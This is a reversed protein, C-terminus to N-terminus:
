NYLTILNVQPPCFLRIPPAYCANSGLGACISFADVGFRAPDDLDEKIFIGDSYKRGLQTMTVPAGYGPIKIQGGHTHGAIGFDARWRDPFYTFVDPNHAVIIKLVGNPAEKMCITPDIGRRRHDVGGLFISTGGIQITTHNDKLYTAEPIFRMIADCDWDSDGNVIFVSTKTKLGAIWRRLQALLVPHQGSGTLDGSIAVFDPDFNNVIKSAREERDGVRTAHIDSLHAIKIKTGAPLSPILVNREMTVTRNTEIFLMDFAAALMLLPLLTRIWDRRAVAITLITLPLTAMANWFAVGLVFYMHHARIKFIYFVTFAGVVGCVNCIASITFTVFDRRLRRAATEAPSKKVFFRAIVMAFATCLVSVLLVPAQWKGVLEWWVSFDYVPATEFPRPSFM